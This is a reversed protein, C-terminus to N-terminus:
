AEVGKATSASSRYFESWESPERIDKTQHQPCYAFKFDGQCAKVYAFNSVKLTCTDLKECIM